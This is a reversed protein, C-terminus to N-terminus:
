SGNFDVLVAPKELLEFTVAVEVNGITSVQAKVTEEEHLAFIGLSSQGGLVLRDGGGVNTGDFIYVQPDLRAITYEEGSASATTLTVTKTVLDVTYDNGVGEILVTGNKRVELYTSTAPSTFTYNLTTTGPSPVSSESAGIQDWYLDVSNTSTNHNAVFIYNISCVYGNPVAFVEHLDTNTITLHKTYLM